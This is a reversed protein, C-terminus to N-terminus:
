ELLTNQKKIPTLHYIPTTLWSNNHIVWCLAYSGFSAVDHYFDYVEVEFSPSVENEQFIMKIPPNNM